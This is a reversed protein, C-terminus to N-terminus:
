SHQAHVVRVHEDFHHGVHTVGNRGSGEPFVTAFERRVISRRLSNEQCPRGSGASSRTRGGAGPLVQEREPSLERAVQEILGKWDGRVTQRFLRMTPYWPSDDREVMWRWEAEFPLLTWVPKGLAGALHAM